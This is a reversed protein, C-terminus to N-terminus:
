PSFRNAYCMLNEYGNPEHLRSVRDAITNSIGPYYVVKLRFNGIASAWYIRRLSDMVLNNGCTGNNIIAVAAQNDCYVYVKQNRWLHKWAAVVPELAMVEKYNIHLDYVAAPWAWLLSSYVWSGQFYAGAAVNCADNIIIGRDTIWCQCLVMGHKSSGSGGGWTIACTEPSVHEIHHGNWAVSM